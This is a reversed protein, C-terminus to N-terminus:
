GRSLYQLMSLGFLAGGIILGILFLGLMIQSGTLLWLVFTLGLIMPAIVELPMSFRTAMFAMFVLVLISALTSDGFFVFETFCEGAQPFDTIVLSQCARSLLPIM